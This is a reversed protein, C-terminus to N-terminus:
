AKAMSARLGKQNAVFDFARTFREFFAPDEGFNTALLLVDFMDQQVAYDVCETLYGGHGSMGFFRVKGQSRAKDAFKLWQENKLRSIDNVAHNFFIDVYDTQLRSLSEDLRQMMSAASDRSGAGIKTAVYVQDRKGKLARGMVTESTGGGYSEATDFYNIGQDMAHHVVHEEGRRLPFSGFSIDSVKFETRGLRVYNKVGGSSDQSSASSSSSEDAAANVPIGAALGTVAGLRLFSRRDVKKM